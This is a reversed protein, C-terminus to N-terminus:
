YGCSLSTNPWDTWRGGRMRYIIWARYIQESPPARAIDATSNGAGGASHWTGLTFSLGGGYRWDSTATWGGEGNPGPGGTVDDYRHARYYGHAWLVYEPREGHWAPHPVYRLGAHICLIEAVVSPPPSQPTGNAPVSAALAAAWVLLTLALRKM